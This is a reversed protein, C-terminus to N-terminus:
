WSKGLLTMVYGSVYLSPACLAGLARSHRSDSLIFSKDNMCQEFTSYTAQSANLVQSLTYPGDYLAQLRSGDCWVLFKSSKANTIISTAEILQAECESDTKSYILQESHAPVAADKRYYIFVGPAEKAITAGLSKLFERVQDQRQNNLNELNLPSFTFLRKLPRAPISNLSKGFGEIKVFYKKDSFYSDKVCTASVSKFNTQANFLNVQTSLDALCNDFTTYLSNEYIRDFSLPDNKGILVIYPNSATDASYTLGLNCAKYEKDDAIVSEESRSSASTVHYGTAEAFDQSWRQATQDCSTATIVQTQYTYNFQGAAFASLSLLALHAILM